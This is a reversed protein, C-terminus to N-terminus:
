KFVWYNMLIWSLVVGFPLYILQGVYPSLHLHNVLVLLCVTNIVYISMYAFIFKAFVRSSKKSCFVFHGFSFFNFLIGLTTSLALALSIRFDIFLFFAFCLYGVLTNLLGTLIFKGFKLRAFFIVEFQASLHRILTLM